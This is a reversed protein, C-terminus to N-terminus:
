RGLREQGAVRADLEAGRLVDIALAQRCQQRCVIIWRPGDARVYVFLNFRTEGVVSTVDLQYVDVISTPLTKQGYAGQWLELLFTRHLGNALRGSFDTFRIENATIAGSRRALGRPGAPLLFTETTDHHLWLEVKDRVRPALVQGDPTCLVIIWRDLPSPVPEVSGAPADACEIDPESTAQGQASVPIMWAFLLAAIVLRMEM